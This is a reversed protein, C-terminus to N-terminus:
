DWYLPVHLACVTLHMHWFLLQFHRSTNVNWRGIDVILFTALDWLGHLLCRIIANKLHIGLSRFFFNALFFIVHGDDSHHSHRKYTKIYYNRKQHLCRFGFFPERMIVTNPFLIHICRSLYAAHCQNEILDGKLEVALCGAIWICQSNADENRKVGAGCEIGDHWLVCISIIISGGYALWWLIFSYSTSHKNM